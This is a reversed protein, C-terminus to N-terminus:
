FFIPMQCLSSSLRIDDKGQARKLSVFRHQAFGCHQACAVLTAVIWLAPCVGCTNRCDVTSPVRSLQQSLRFGNYPWVTTAQWVSCSVIPDFSWKSESPCVNQIKARWLLRFANDCHRMVLCNDSIFFATKKRERFMYKSILVTQWM